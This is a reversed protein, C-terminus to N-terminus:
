ENTEKPKPIDQFPPMRKIWRQHLERGRWDVSNIERDAKALLEEDFNERLMKVAINFELHHRRLQSGDGISEDEAWTVTEAEPCHKTQNDLCFKSFAMDADPFFLDTEALRYQQRLHDNTPLPSTM